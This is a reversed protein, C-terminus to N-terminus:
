KLAAYKEKDLPVPELSASSWVPAIGETITLQEIFQEDGEYDPMLPTHFGM